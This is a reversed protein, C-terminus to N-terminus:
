GTRSARARTVLDRNRLLMPSLRERVDDPYGIGVVLLPGIERNLDMTLM